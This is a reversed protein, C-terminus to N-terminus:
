SKKLSAEKNHEEIETMTSGDVVVDVKLYENVQEIQKFLDSIGGHNLFNYRKNDSYIINAEYVSYLKGGSETHAQQKRIVQIGKVEYFSITNVGVQLLKKNLNLLLGGYIMNHFLLHMALSVIAVLFGYNLIFSIISGEDIVKVLSYLLGMILVPYTIYQYKVNNKFAMVGPKVSIWHKNNAPKGTIAITKWSLGEAYEYQKLCVYKTNILDLDENLKTSQYWYYIILAPILQATYQLVKLFAALYDSREGIVLSVLPNNVVFLDQIMIILPGWLPFGLLVILLISALFEMLHFKFGKKVVSSSEDM